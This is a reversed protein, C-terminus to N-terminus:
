DLLSDERSGASRACVALERVLESRDPLDHEEM